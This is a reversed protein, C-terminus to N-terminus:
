PNVGRMANRVQPCRSLDAYRNNAARVVAERVTGAVANLAGGRVALLEDIPERVFLSLVYNYNSSGQGIALLYDLIEERDYEAVESVTVYEANVGNSM